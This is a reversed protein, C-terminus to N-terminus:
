SKRPRGVKAFTIGLEDAAMRLLGARKLAEVKEPGYPMARATALAEEAEAELDREEIPLGGSM